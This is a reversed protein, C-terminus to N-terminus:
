SSSSTPTRPATSRCTRDGRARDDTARPDPVSAPAWTPFGPGLYRQRVATRMIKGSSTRPVEGARTLVVERVSVEHEATIAARVAGTLDDRDTGPLPDRAVEQVVVLREGDPGPVSIAAAGGARMAPHVAQVTRELDQPYLNRGRIVIMDRLRGAVYLEGDVLVGLDGTRLFPREGEGAIRAGFTAATADPRRWYGRAVHPGAVWIEGLRDPPCPRETDADVIRVEEGPLIRGSGVLPRGRNGETVALQRRALADVDVTVARAGRGKGSGSVLLTAEALGYCPYVAGPDFGVPAFTETFRRLTEARLPEAGNFAVKWCSLDLEPLGARAAGVCADFAFNPGGSTHARYRSITSLWLLPRRIFATPSMLVSTTGLWLPQLVNGILGQDHFLPAWGVFGSHEDHGFAERIMAQNAALNGHTVEVGKPASTSGSTYQLFRARGAPM